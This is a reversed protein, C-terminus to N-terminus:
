KSRIEELLKIKTKYIKREVEYTVPLQALLKKQQEIQYSVYDMNEKLLKPGFEYELETYEYAGPKYYSIVYYIGRELVAKESVIHFGRAVMGRRLEYLDRNSQLIVHHLSFCIDPTLIEELMTMTGMGSIVVYDTQKIMIGELGPTCILKIKSELRADMVNKKACMLANPNIDMAITTCSKEQVLYLDLLAHDCGVDLVHSDDPIFDAIALLRKSLKM